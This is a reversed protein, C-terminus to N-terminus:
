VFPRVELLTREKSSTRLFLTLPRQSMMPICFLFIYSLMHNVCFAKGRTVDEGKIIDAFLANIAKAVDYHYM